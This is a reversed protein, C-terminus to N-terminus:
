AWQRRYWGGDVVLIQDLGKRGFGSPAEDMSGDPNATRGVGPMERAKERLIGMTQYEEM